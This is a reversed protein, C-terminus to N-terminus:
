TAALAVAADHGHDAVAEVVRRRQRLGVDADRHGRAGVDGGFGRRDRQHAAVEGADLLRM